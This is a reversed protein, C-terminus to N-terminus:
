VLEADPCSWVEVERQLAPNVVRREVTMGLRAALRRSRANDPHIISIVRLRLVKEAHDRAAVAGEFALGRGWAARALRWGLEPRHALAPIFAPYAVGVFGLIARDGGPRALELPEMAFAGFGHRRWHDRLGRYIDDLRAPDVVRNLFRTVEPDRNIAALPERDADTFARLVLRATRLELAAGAGSAGPLSM